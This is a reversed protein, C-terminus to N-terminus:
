RLMRKPAVLAPGVIMGDNNVPYSSFPYEESWLNSAHENLPLDKIKGEDDCVMIAGSPMPVMTITGGDIYNKLEEYTFNHGNAPTIEVPEAGVAIFYAKKPEM